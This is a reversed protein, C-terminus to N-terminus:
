PQLNVLVAVGVNVQHGVRRLDNSVVGDGLVGVECGDELHDNTQMRAEQDSKLQINLRSLM